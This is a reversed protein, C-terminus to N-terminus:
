VNTTEKLLSESLNCILRLVDFSREHEFPFYAWQNGEAFIHPIGWGEVLYLEKPKLALWRKPLTEYSRTDIHFSNGSYVGWSVGPLRTLAMFIQTMSRGPCCADIADARNPHTERIIRIPSGLQLRLQDLWWATMYGTKSWDVFQGNMLKESDDFHTLTKLEEPTM